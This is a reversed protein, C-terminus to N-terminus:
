ATRTLGTPGALLFEADDPAHGPGPARFRRALAILHLAAAAAGGGKDQGERSPARGRAQEHTRAGDPHRQRHLARDLGLLM